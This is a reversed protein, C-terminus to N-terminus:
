TLQLTNKSHAQGLRELYNQIVFCRKSPNTHVNLIGVPHITIVATIGKSDM